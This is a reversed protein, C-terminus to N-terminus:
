RTLRRFAELTKRRRNNEDVADLLSKFQKLEDGGATALITSMMEKLTMGIEATEGQLVALVSSLNGRASNILAKCARPVDMGSAETLDDFADQIKNENAKSLVRGQKEQKSFVAASIQVEEEGDSLVPKGDKMEWAIKFWKDESGEECVQVIVTDAFTAEIYCWRHQNGVLFRQQAQKNLENRIWEWSGALDAYVKEGEAFVYGCEQCVGDVIDTSGCEPCTMEEDGAEEQKEGGSGGDAKASPETGKTGEGRGKEGPQGGEDRVEQGNLLMKLDITVPVRVAREARIAQGVDKMVASTLKRGEVLSLLIEETDADVNAPVSVMSEEMIEAKRIDFGGIENGKEDKFKEFEVAKFGHSFRAMGNDAMVAADHCVDNMDIIASVVRLAKEDQSHTYIYPGLPMTHIHQWLLLMKPDVVMGDSHLVDGDRDKTSTTLKHRFVMLANKPLETGEPAGKLMGPFNSATATAKELEMEPNAYVLTRAAKEMLDNFSTQGKAAHRYAKDIGVCDRFGAVYRDATTIGYGFSSKSGTRARVAAILESNVDVQKARWQSYCIALAQEDSEAEGSVVPVCRAIFDQESERSWPKPLPM